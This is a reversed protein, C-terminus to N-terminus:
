TQGDRPAPQLRQNGLQAASSELKRYFRVVPVKDTPGTNLKFRTLHLLKIKWSHLLFAVTHRRLLPLNNGEVLSAVGKNAPHQLM